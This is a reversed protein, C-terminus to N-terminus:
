GYIIHPMPLILEIPEEVYAADDAIFNDFYLASGTPPYQDNPDIGLRVTSINAVASRDVGMDSYGLDGDIWVEMGGDISGVVSRIVIWHWEEISFNTTFFTSGVRWSNVVGADPSDRFVQLRDIWGTNRTSFIQWVNYNLTLTSPLYVHFGIYVESLDTNKEGYGVANGDVGRLRMGYDGTKAADAHADLVGGQALFLTDFVDLTGDEFGSNWLEAM